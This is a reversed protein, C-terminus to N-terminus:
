IWLYGDRSGKVPVVSNTDLAEAAEHSNLSSLKEDEDIREKIRKKKRCPKYKKHSCVCIFVILLILFILGAVGCAIVIKRQEEVRFDYDLYECRSGIYGIVCRCSPTNLEKLFRCDGHICFYQYDEPCQVKVATTMTIMQFPGM